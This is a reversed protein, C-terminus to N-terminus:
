CFVRLCQGFFPNALPEFDKSMTVMVSPIPIDEKIKLTEYRLNGVSGNDTQGDICKKGSQKICYAFSAHRKDLYKLNWAKSLRYFFCQYSVTHMM